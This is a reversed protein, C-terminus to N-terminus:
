RLSELYAVLDRFEETTLLDVLKAPMISKPQAIRSEIEKTKVKTLVGELNGLVIQGNNEEVIMGSHTLGEHTVLQWQV